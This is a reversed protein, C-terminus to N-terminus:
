QNQLQVTETGTHIGTSSVCHFELTYTEAGASTKDVLVHYVGDGGHNNAWRSYKVNGDVADTSNTAVFGKQIQFSVVPKKKPMNDRLRMRLHGTAPGGDEAFCTVRYLDTAQARSGLGGSLSHAPTFDIHGVAYLFAVAMSANKLSVFSM